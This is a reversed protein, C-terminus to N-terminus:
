KWNLRAALFCPVIKANKSDLADKWIFSGAITQFSSDTTISELLTAVHHLHCVHPRGGSDTEEKSYSSQMRIGKNVKDMWGRALGAPKTLWGGNTCRGLLPSTIPKAGKREATVMSKRGALTDAHGARLSLNMLYFPTGTRRPHINQSFTTKCVGKQRKASEYVLCSIFMVHIHDLELVTNCFGGGLTRALFQSEFRLHVSACVCVKQAQSSNRLIV